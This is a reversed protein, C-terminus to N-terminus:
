HAPEAGHAPLDSIRRGALVRLTRHRAGIRDNLRLLLLQVVALACREETPSESVPHAAPASECGQAKNVKPPVVMDANPCSLVITCCTVCRSAVRPRREGHLIPTSDLFPSTVNVPAM